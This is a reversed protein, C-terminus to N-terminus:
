LRDHEGSDNLLPLSLNWVEVRVPVAFGYGDPLAASLELLGSYNGAPQGYPICVELYIPQTFGRPIRPIGDPPVPLLPDAYWGPLCPHGDNRSTGGCSTNMVNCGCSNCACHAGPPCPTGGGCHAPGHVVPCGTWCTGWPTDSCNRPPPPPTKGTLVDYDCMYAHPTSANVYGQQKYSWHTQPLTSLVDLEDPTHVSLDRFKVQLGTIEVADDRVWVQARECEGRQAALDVVRTSSPYPKQRDHAIKVTIPDVWWTSTVAPPAADNNDDPKAHTPVDQVDDTKLQVREARLAYVGISTVPELNDDSKFAPSVDRLPWRQSPQGPCELTVDNTPQVIWVGNPTASANPTSLVRGDHFLLFCEAPATPLDVTVTINLGSAGGMPRACSAAPVDTTNPTFRWATATGATVGSLLFSDRWRHLGAALPVHWAGIGHPRQWLPIAKDEGGVWLKLDYGAEREAAYPM